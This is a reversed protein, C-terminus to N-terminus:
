ADAQGDADAREVPQKRRQQKGNGDAAHDSKANIKVELENIKQMITQMQEAMTQAQKEEETIHPTLDFATVTKYAASDTKVFYLVAAANDLALMADDPGMELQKAGQVGTVWLIEHKPPQMPYQPVAARQTPQMQVQQAPDMEWRGTYPNYAM